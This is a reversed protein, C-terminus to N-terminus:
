LLELSNDIEYDSKLNNAIFWLEVKTKHLIM